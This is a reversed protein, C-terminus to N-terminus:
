SLIPVPWLKSRTSTTRPSMAPTSPDISTSTAAGAGMANTGMPSHAAPKTSTLRKQGYAAVRRATSWRTNPTPPPASDLPQLRNLFSFMALPTIPSRRVASASSDSNRMGPVRTKWPRRKGPLRTASMSWATTLPSRTSKM